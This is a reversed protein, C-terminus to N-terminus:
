RECRGGPQWDSPTARPTSADHVIVFFADRKSPGMINLQMPTNAPAVMGEGARARRTGDPWELCQQGTLLYFIEAGPHTHVARAVETRVDPGFDAESIDMVYASAAPMPPIPGVEVVDDAGKSRKGRPGLTILWVRGGAEVVASTPTLARRASEATKFVEFRLTLPATPLRNFRVQALVACDVDVPRKGPTPTDGCPRLVHGASHQEQAQASAGSAQGVTTLLVIGITRMSLAVVASMTTVPLTIRM